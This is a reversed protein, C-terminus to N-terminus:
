IEFKKREQSISAIASNADCSESLTLEYLVIWHALVISIMCTAFSWSHLSKNNSRGFLLTQLINCCIHINIVFANNHLLYIVFTHM